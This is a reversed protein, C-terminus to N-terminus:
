LKTQLRTEESFPVVPWERVWIPGIHSTAHFLFYPETEGDHAPADDASSERASGATGLQEEDEAM